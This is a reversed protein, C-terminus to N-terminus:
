SARPELRFVGAGARQEPKPDFDYKRKMAALCAEVEAEDDVRVARLEYISDGVKLRVDPNEAINTAWQSSEIEGAAVYFRSDIGVGWINVSYPDRPLTELQVTDVADSFTWDGPAQQVSGSLAGGPLMWVPGCGVLLLAVFLGSLIRM